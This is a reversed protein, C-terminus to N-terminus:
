PFTRLWTSELLLALLLLGLAPLMAYHALDDFFDTETIEIKTQEMQDIQEYISELSRGNTAHFFQGGTMEAIRTLQEVDLRSRIQTIRPRTSGLNAEPIPVIRDVSGVGITYVRVGLDAAMQGASIPDIRGANNEGDTLLIVVKSRAPSTALQGVAKALGMGIATADGRVIDFEIRRVFDQLVLYDHTMPALVAANRGFIVLGIRDSIRGGIFSRVVDKAKELRDPVFDLARMSESVDIALIIDIGETLNKHQRNIAQPRALAVILLACTALVLIMPLHLLYQRLSRPAGEVLGVSSFALHPQRGRRRWLWWAIALLPVLGLLVWPHALRIM